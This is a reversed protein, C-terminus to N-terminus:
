GDTIHVYAFYEYFNTQLDAIIDWPIDGDYEELLTGRIHYMDSASLYANTEDDLIAACSDYGDAVLKSKLTKRLALPLKRIIKMSDRKFDSHIYWLAHCAEHYIYTSVDLCGAYTGIVYYKEEFLGNDDQLQMEIHKLMATEKNTLQGKYAAFFEDVVHGPVNFGAWDSTYTFNKSAAGEAYVDMMQEVTFVKGQLGHASEYYEQMRMFTASIDFQTKGQLHIIGPALIECKM